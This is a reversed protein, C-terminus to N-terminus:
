RPTWERLEATPPFLDCLGALVASATVPWLEVTPDDPVVLWYGDETDLVELDRGGDPEWRTAVRWHERLGAIVAAFAEAQEDDDLRLAPRTAPPSRRPWSRRAARRHAARSRARPGPGVDNLRM